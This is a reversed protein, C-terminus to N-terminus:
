PRDVEGAKGRLERLGSSAVREGSERPFFLNVPFVSLCKLLLANKIVFEM